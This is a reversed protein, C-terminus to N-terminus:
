YRIAAAGMGVESRVGTWFFVLKDLLYMATVAKWGAAAAARREWERGGGSGVRGSGVRGGM